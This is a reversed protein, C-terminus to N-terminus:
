HQGFAIHQIHIDAVALHTPLRALHLLVDRTASAQFQGAVAHQGSRGVLFSGQKGGMRALM